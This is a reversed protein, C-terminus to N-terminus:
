MGPALPSISSVRILKSILWLPEESSLDERPSVLSFVVDPVVASGGGEVIVTRGLLVLVDEVTAVLSFIKSPLSMVVTEVELETDIGTPSRDLLPDRLVVERRLRKM